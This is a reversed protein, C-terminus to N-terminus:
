QSTPGQLQSAHVRFVGKICDLNRVAIQIHTKEQFGAGPYIPSGEVFLGRVTDLYTGAKELISHLRRVVACDLRRLIPNPGNEPLETGAKESTEKLSTYAEKVMEIASYTTM